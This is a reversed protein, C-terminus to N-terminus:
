MISTSSASPTTTLTFVITTGSYSAQRAAAASRRRDRLVAKEQRGRHPRMPQAATGLGDRSHAM